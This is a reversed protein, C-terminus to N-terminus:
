INEIEKHKVFNYINKVNILNNRIEIDFEKSDFINIYELM